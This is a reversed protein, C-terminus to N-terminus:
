VAGPITRSPPRVARHYLEGLIRGLFVLVNDVDMKVPLSNWAKPIRQAVDDQKPHFMAYLYEADVIRM